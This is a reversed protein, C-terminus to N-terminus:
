KTTHVVPFLLCTSLPKDEEEEEEVVEEEENAAAATRKGAFTTRWTPDLNSSERITYGLQRYYPRRKTKWQRQFGPHTDVIDYVIPHSYVHRGRLVRGVIQRVDSKPTILFEANLSPIDLGEACMTYTALLVQQQASHQLEAEKMGGVYYGVSVLNYSVLKQYLYDLVSRNQSLILTQTQTRPRVHVNEVYHQRWVLKKNCEPCKTKQQSCPACYLVCHCCTYEVLYLRTYHCGKCPPVAADMDRKHNRREDDSIGPVRLFTCLLQVIFESREVSSCLKNIMNAIMTEGRYNVCVNNYESDHSRFTVARVEVDHGENVKAVHLVPGLFWSFVFGLGDKRDLTASLGLTYPTVFRFLVNSFEQAAIHHAEDVILFGFAKTIHPPYETKMVTQIMGIVFDMGEVQLTSGQIIGVRAHPAYQGIREIWQNMLVTTHVLVLTCTRIHVTAVYIAMTTKGGGCFVEFLGGAKGNGQKHCEHVFAGIATEQHPRLPYRAHDFQTDPHMPACEEKRITASGTPPGLLSVGYFYPLYWKHSSERYMPFSEKMASSPAGPTQPQVQLDRLMRDRTESSLLAKPVTYGKPGLYTYMHFHYYPPLTVHDTQTRELNTKKKCANLLRLM